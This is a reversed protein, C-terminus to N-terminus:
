DADWDRGHKYWGHHHGRGHARHRFGIAAPVSYVPAYYYIPPPGYLVPPPGYVVSPPGYVVPPPCPEHVFVSLGPLGLALSFHAEAPAPRGLGIAALAGLVLLLKRMM